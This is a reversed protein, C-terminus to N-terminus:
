SFKDVKKALTQTSQKKTQLSSFGERRSIKAHNNRQQDHLAKDNDLKVKV